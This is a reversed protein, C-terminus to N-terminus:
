KAEQTTKQINNERNDEEHKEAYKEESLIWDLTNPNAWVGRDEFEASEVIINVYACDKNLAMNSALSKKVGKALAADEWTLTRIHKKIYGNPSASVPKGDKDYEACLFSLKKVTRESSNAADFRLDSLDSGGDRHVISVDSLAIFPCVADTKQAKIDELKTFKDSFVPEYSKEDNLFKLKTIAADIYEAGEVKPIFRELGDSFGAPVVADFDVKDQSILKKNKDFYKIDLSYGYIQEGGNKIITRPIGFSDAFAYVVQAPCGNDKPAANETIQGTTIETQEYVSATDVPMVTCNKNNYVTIGVCMLASAALYIVATKDIKMKEGSIRM